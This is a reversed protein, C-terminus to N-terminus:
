AAPARDIFRDFWGELMLLAWLQQDWRARGAMHEDLMRQVERPEFLGRSTAARGLLVDYALDRLPGRFWQPLPVAFGTKRRELIEAPLFPRMARRLLYKKEGGRLKLRAPLAAALEMVDHDLLPPRAELGHAMTAIDMKVLLDDPLYTAVDTGLVADVVDPTDAAAHAALAVAVPDMGATIARLDTSYLRTKAPEDFLTLWRVYRRAPEAAADPGFRRLRQLLGDEAGIRPLAGFVRGVSRRLPAPVADFRSALAHLRYRYYGAFSEDGGDGTLAVTVHRRAFRALYYTAIASSDAYPENYHWVLEPLVAVADPRVVDEHHDTGYRHAVLRAFPREDYAPEDFGMSFTKVRGGLEGMLAVVASSDVGGSLFAGVPVDAILRRRVADRLRDLLAECAETAGLVLKPRYRLRWYRTVSTKGDVVEMYHGPPLKQLKRFASWPAPVYGYTLYHHIAEMDAAAPVDPDVFIGKPESAFLLKEDDVYYHLPKEGVRDRALVLTRRRADWVALAFMGTLRALCAPGEREWLALIVETDSRSRFTVGDAALAARLEPCNYIEGNYNIWLTRGANAMPQHGAQSVDVISLRRHAFGIAGDHFVGEDDPGRHGLVRNMAALLAPDVHRERDFYLKGAIGCM